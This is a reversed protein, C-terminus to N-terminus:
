SRFDTPNIVNRRMVDYFDKRDKKAIRAARSINGNCLRLVRTVYEHEFARKAERFSPVQESSDWSLMLDEPGLEETRALGVASRVQERLEREDGPWTHERLRELADRSFGRVICPQGSEYEIEAARVSLEHAAIPLIDERRERLPPVDIELLRLRETLEPLLRGETTLADLSHCSSGIVRCELPYSSKGGVPLVEGRELTVALAHQLEKPLTEVNDILVTGGAYRTLAGEFGTSLAPGVGRENGMLERALLAAPVISADLAFFDGSAWESQDHILRAIAEKNSGAEGRIWVPFRGRAAVAIQERARQIARSTGVLRDSRRKAARVKATSSEVGRSTPEPMRGMTESEIFSTTM